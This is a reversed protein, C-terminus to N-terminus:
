AFIIDAILTMHYTGVHFPIHTLLEKLMIFFQRKGIVALIIGALHHVFQDTIQEINRLKGVMTRLIKENRQDFNDIAKMKRKTMLLFSARGRIKRTMTM